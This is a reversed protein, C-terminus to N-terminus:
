SLKDGPLYKMPDVPKGQVRIEFHLKVQDTDTNGMEAIRQGKSVGQGEKVLIKDNHAYISLYNNGHKIVLLKGMRPVSNGAYIVKGAASAMVPQGLTGTIDLGKNTESFFGKIKGQAPWTWDTVEDPSTPAPTTATEPTAAPKAIAVVAGAELGPYQVQALADISYPLKIAKPASKLTDSAGSTQAVVTGVGGPLVRAEPAVAGPMIPTAIADGPPAVRLVQGIKLQNVNELQNWQALDKYDAGYQMGLAALTDGKQV